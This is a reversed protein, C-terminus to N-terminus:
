AAGGDLRVVIIDATVVARGDLVVRGECTSIGSDSDMGRRVLLHLASGEAFWPVEAHLHRSGLLMGRRPPEGSRRAALGALLGATQALMEIAVWSPVGHGPEFYPHAAGIRALAEIGDVDDALIADVLVAPPQHPLLEAPAPYAEAVAWCWRLM